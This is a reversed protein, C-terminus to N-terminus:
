LGVQEPLQKALAKFIALDDATTIKFNTSTGITYAVKKNYHLMLATPTMDTIGEKLARCHLEYDLGLRSTEPTQGKYLVSRDTSREVFNREKALYMSDFCPELPIVADATKLERFTEEFVNKPTLPRNADVLSVATDDSKSSILSELGNKFSEFRSDGGKVTGKFIDLHYQEAYSTVFDKWGDACIVYISDYCGSDQVNKMKYVIIPIDNVTM